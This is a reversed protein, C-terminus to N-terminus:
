LGLSKGVTRADLDDTIFLGIREQKALAICEAEGAELGYDLSIAKSFDKYKPGLNEVSVNKLGRIEISGPAEKSVVERYVEAPIFIRSFLKLIRLSDIQALHIFPGTNFVAVEIKAMFGGSSM